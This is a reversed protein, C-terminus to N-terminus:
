AESGIINKKSVKRIANLKQTRFSSAKKNPGKQLIHCAIGNPPTDFLGVIIRFM